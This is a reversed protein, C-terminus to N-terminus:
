VLCNLHSITQLFNPLIPSLRHDDNEFRLIHYGVNYTLKRIYKVVDPRSKLLKIFGEKSSAVHCMPDADHLKITSFLHKSCIQLFSRSVLALKKLLNKIQNEGIIDIILTVIEFPLISSM